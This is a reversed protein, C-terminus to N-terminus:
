ERDAYMERIHSIEERCRLFADVVQPDFQTGSNRRIEDFARDEEWAEKYSRRSTLADYVDAVAVIRGELSIDKKGTPYGKGDEREHHELAVTRAVQMVEGEVNELLKGGYTTHQKMVAYEEDTLKGPKELISEPIMLKGIDHMTSALRITEDDAGLERAIVRAYESVRKVHQGTQGSKNETIEAFSVIMEEQIAQTLDAQEQLYVGYEVFYSLLLLSLSLAIGFFPNYLMGILMIFATRRIEKAAEHTFPKGSIATDAMTRKLGRVLLAMGLFTLATVTCGIAAIFREDMEAIITRLLLYIPNRAYVGSFVGPEVIGAAILAAAVGIVIALVTLGIMAIRCIGGLVQGIHAM